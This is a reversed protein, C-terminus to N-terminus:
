PNFKINGATYDSKMTSHIRRVANCRDKFDSLFSFFLQCSRAINFSSVNETTLTRNKKRKQFSTLLNLRMKNM